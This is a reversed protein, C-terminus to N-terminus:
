FGLSILFALLTIEDRVCDKAEGPVMWDPPQEAGDLKQLLSELQNYADQWDDSAVARAAAHLKNCMANRRGKRANDNPAAFIELPMDDIYACITNLAEEIYGSSVGPETPRDDINDDVGDGDTDTNCPDTGLSVEAGDSLTDGDSDPNLPDPCGTGAAMDVETGDNLGDDDTDPDYPDTGLVLEESDTLGDSDSDRAGGIEWTDGFRIRGDNPYGGFLMVVGRLSDYVMQHHVRGSPGQQCVEWQLGDWRWTDTPLTGDVFSGGFLVCAGISEDFAMSCDYRGGPPSSASVLTWSQGDFEWTEPYMTGGPIAGGYLVTVGRHSDFAM